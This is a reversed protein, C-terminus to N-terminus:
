KKNLSDQVEKWKQVIEKHYKQGTYLGLAFAVSTQIIKM